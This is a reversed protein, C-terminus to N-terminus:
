VFVSSQLKNAFDCERRRYTFVYTQRCFKNVSTTKKQIILNTHKLFINPIRRSCTSRGNQSFSWMMQHVRCKMFAAFQLQHFKSSSKRTWVLHSEVVAAGIGPRGIIKLNALLSRYVVSKMQPPM